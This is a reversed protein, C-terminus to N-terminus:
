VSYGMDDKVRIVGRVRLMYCKNSIFWLFM